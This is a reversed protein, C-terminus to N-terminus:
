LTLERKRKSHALDLDAPCGQRIIRGQDLELIWDMHQMISPRHSSLVLSREQTADRLSAILRAETESDIASMCDDLILIQPERALARAITMRQRQGGSLNTGREGLLTADKEPLRAIDDAICAATTAALIRAKREETKEPSLFLDTGYLINQAITESFLFLEQPVLACRSRVTSLPIDNIDIKDWFIADRPIAEMRALCQLLTSKGSGVPGILGLKMGPKLTFSINDLAASKKGPYYFSFNRVEVTPTQKSAFPKASATDAIDANQNFVKELRTQSALSRQFIGASMGIAEMPWSLKQVYRQFAVFVGLTLHEGIVLSGGILFMVSISVSVFSDLCSNLSSQNWASGIGADIYNQGLRDFGREKAKELANGKVIRIGSLTEQCHAALDSFREQVLRFSRHIKKEMYRVLFPLCFMPVLTLLTLKPSLFYMAPPIAFFYFLADFLTLAGPGLSFRVSEVDNTSLSVLEGTRSRKFFGPSLTTLKYFLSERLDHAAHMSTRIIYRRWLFRMLGQILAVLLYLACITLLGAVAVHGAGIMDVASKLLMPPAVELADVIVLSGIGFLYFNKYKRFYKFFLRHDQFRSKM